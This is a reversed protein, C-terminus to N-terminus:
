FVGDFGLLGSIRREREGSYVHTGWAVGYHLKWVRTLQWTHQYSLDLTPVTTYGAEDTLGTSIQFNQTLSQDYDRWTVWDHQLRVDTSFLNKPNYYTGGAQSNAERYLDIGGATVYDDGAFLRQSGGISVTQRHNGDDINLLGFNLYASRSESQRWKINLNADNASLGAGLARLPIAMSDTSGNLAYQWYDNLWQSWGASVGSHDDQPFRQSFLVWADRREGDWELGTGLRNDQIDQSGIDSWRDDHQVFGRWNDMVWPTNIRTEWARDRSGNVDIANGGGASDGVSFESTISPRNRDQWTAYSKQVSSDNPFDQYLPVITAGWRQIQELDSANNAINIRTAPDQPEYTEAISTMKDAYQPWGRWRLVTAYDDIVGISYPARNFLDALQAESEALHNRYALDMAVTQDVELREWNPLPEGGAGKSHAYSPTVRKLQALVDDAQKYNESEILARYLSLALPADNQKQLLATYMKAAIKPQQVALYADAVARIVYDPVQADLPLQEYTQITESMRNLLRLVYIRDFETRRYQPSDKPIAKLNIDIDALVDELPQNRVQYRRIGDLRDREAVADQLQAITNDARLRYLTEQSFFVAHQEALLYAANTANLDSLAYVSEQIAVIQNPDQNRALMSMALGQAPQKALRYVYAMQALDTADLTSNVVPLAALAVKPHNAEASVVAYLIQAKVDLKYKYPELLHQAEAFLHLDRLAGAWAIVAYDPFNPFTRNETLQRIELNRGAQHLLVILDAVVRVDDPYQAHLRYLSQIAVDLKGYKSILVAQERLIRVAPDISEAWSTASTLCGLLIFIYNSHAHFGLVNKKLVAGSHVANQQM